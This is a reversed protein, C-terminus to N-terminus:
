TYAAHEAPRFYPNKAGCVTPGIYLCKLSEQFTLKLIWLHRSCKLKRPVQGSYAYQQCNDSLTSIQLYAVAYDCKDVTDPLSYAECM